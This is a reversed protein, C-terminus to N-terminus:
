PLEADVVVTSPVSTSVYVYYIGTLVTGSISRENSSSTGACLRMLSQARCPTNGLGDYGIFVDVGPPTTFTLALRGMTETRAAIVIDSGARGCNTDLNDAAGCTTFM